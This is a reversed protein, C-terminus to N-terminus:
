PQILIESLLVVPQTATKNALDHVETADMDIPAPNTLTRIRHPTPLRNLNVKITTGKLSKDKGFVKDNITIGM